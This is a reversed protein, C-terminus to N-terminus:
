EISAVQEPAKKSVNEAKNEEEVGRLIADDPSQIMRKPLPELSFGMDALTQTSNTKATQQIIKAPAEKENEITAAVETSDTSPMDLPM